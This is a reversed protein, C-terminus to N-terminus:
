RLGDGLDMGWPLDTEIGYTPEYVGTSLCGLRGIMIGLILPVTFLDGSSHREGIVRKAAEVGLLGGFLGGVITKSQYFYLLPYEAVLWGNPNELSGVLRSGLFAGMAAGIIISFRNDESIRDASRAKLYRYYRYGLMFSLVEFVLHASVKFDGYGFELPYTFM